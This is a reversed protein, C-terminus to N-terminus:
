KSFTASGYAGAGGEKRMKSSTTSFSQRNRSSKPTLSPRIPSAAATTLDEYSDSSADYLLVSDFPQSRGDLIVPTSFIGTKRDTFYAATQIGAITRLFVVIPINQKFLVQSSTAPLSDLTALTERADEFRGGDVEGIFKLTIHM